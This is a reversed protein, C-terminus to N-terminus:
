CGAEVLIKVATEMHERFYNSITCHIANNGNADLALVSAGKQLLSKIMRVSGLRENRISTTSLLADPPIAVNLTLFYVVVSVHGNQVTIDMPIDRVANAITLSCRAEILFKTIELCNEETDQSDAINYNLIAHLITGGSARVVHVNAGMHILYHIVMLANKSSDRTSVSLLINPPPWLTALSLLYQIVSIFGWRVALHLPTESLLSYASPDCGADVLLKVRELCKTESVNHDTAIHLVPRSTMHLRMHILEM